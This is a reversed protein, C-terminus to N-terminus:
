LPHYLQDMSKQQWYHCLFPWLYLLANVTCTEEEFNSQYKFSHLPIKLVTWRKLNHGKELLVPEQKKRWASLGNKLLVLSNWSFALSSLLFSPKGLNEKCVCCQYFIDRLRQQIFTAKTIDM